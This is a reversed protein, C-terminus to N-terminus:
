YIITRLLESTEKKRTEKLDGEFHKSKGSEAGGFIFGSM